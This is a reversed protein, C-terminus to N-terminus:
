RIIERTSVKDNDNFKARLPKLVNIFAVTKEIEWQNCPGNHHRLQILYHAQLKLEDVMEERTKCGGGWIELYGSVIKSLYIKERENM